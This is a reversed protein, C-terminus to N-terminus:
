RAAEVGGLLGSGADRSRAATGGRQRSRRSQPVRKRALIAPAGRRAANRGAEASQRHRLIDNLIPAKGGARSRNYTGPERTAGPRQRAGVRWGIQLACAVGGVDRGAGGRAG